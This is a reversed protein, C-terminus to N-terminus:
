LKGYCVNIYVFHIAYYAMQTIYGFKVCLDKHLAEICNIENVHYSYYDKLLCFGFQM